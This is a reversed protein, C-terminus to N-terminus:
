RLGKAQLYTNVNEYTLPLDNSALYRPIRIKQGMTLTNADTFGNIRAIRPATDATGTYWEAILRLTEGKYRVVHLIDGDVKEGPIATAATSASPSVAPSLDETKVPKLTSVVEDGTSPQAELDLEASPTGLELNDTSAEGIQTESTPIGRLSQAISDPIKHPGRIVWDTSSDELIYLEGQRPYFFYLVYPRLIVKKVEIAEPYGRVKLFGKLTPSIDVEKALLINSAIYPNGKSLAVPGRNALNDRVSGTGNLGLTNTIRTCGSTGVLYLCALLGYKAIRSM